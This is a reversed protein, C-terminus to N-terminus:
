ILLVWLIYKGQLDLQVIKVEHAELSRLLGSKNRQELTIVGRGGIDVNLLNYNLKYEKILQKEKEEWQLEDCEDIQKIIVNIQKLQLSYIWKAVPTTRKKEYKAVHKHQSLRQNLSITTVGIYRINDVEEESSLTYFVYKKM